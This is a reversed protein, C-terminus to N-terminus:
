EPVPAFEFRMIQRRLAKKSEWFFPFRYLEGLNAIEEDADVIALDYKEAAEVFKKKVYAPKVYDSVKKGNHTKELLSILVQGGNKLCRVTEEILDDYFHKLEEDSEQTNYGYPPDTIVMDVIQEHKEFDRLFVKFDSQRITQKEQMKNYYPLYDVGVYSIQKEGVSNGNELIKLTDSMDLIRFFLASLEQFLNDVFQRKIIVCKHKFHRLYNKEVVYQYFRKYFNHLSRSPVVKKNMLEAVRLRQRESLSKMLLAYHEESLKKLDHVILYAIEESKEHDMSFFELNFLVDERVSKKLDGGWFAIESYKVAEIAMTGSGVLPDVVTYIKGQEYQSRGINFMAAVLTHPILTNNWAPHDTDFLYSVNRNEYLIHSIFYYSKDEEWKNDKLLWMEGSANCSDNLKKALEKISVKSIKQDDPLIKVSMLGQDKFDDEYGNDKDPFTDEDYIKFVIDQKNKKRYASVAEVIQRDSINEMDDCFVIIGCYAIYGAEYVMKGIDLIVDAPVYVISSTDYNEIVILDSLADTISIVGERLLEEVQKRLLFCVKGQQKQFVCHRKLLELLERYQIDTVRCNCRYVFQYVKRGQKWQEFLDKSSREEM